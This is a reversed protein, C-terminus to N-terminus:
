LWFGAWQGWRVQACAPTVPHKDQGWPDAQAAVVGLARGTLAAQWTEIAVGERALGIVALGTGTRPLQGARGHWLTPLHHTGM